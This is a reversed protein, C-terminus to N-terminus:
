PFFGIFITIVLIEIFSANKNLKISMILVYFLNLSVVVQDTAAAVVEAVATKAQIQNTMSSELQLIATATDESATSGQDHDADTTRSYSMDSYSAHSVDMDDASEDGDDKM